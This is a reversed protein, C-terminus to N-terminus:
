KPSDEGEKFTGNAKAVLNSIIEIDRIPLDAIEEFSVKDSGVNLRELLHFSKRTEAKSALEEELYMLDRGTMERITIKRGDSLTDEFTRLGPAVGSPAKQTQDTVTRM